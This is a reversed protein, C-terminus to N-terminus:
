GALYSLRQGQTISRVIEAGAGYYDDAVTATAGYGVHLAVDSCLRIVRTDSNPASTQASAASPATGAYSSVIPKGLTPIVNAGGDLPLERYESITIKAM